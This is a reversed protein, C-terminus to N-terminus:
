WIEIDALLEKKFKTFQKQRVKREKEEKKLEDQEQQKKALEKAKDMQEAMNSLPLAIKEFEVINDSIKKDLMQALTHLTKISRLFSKISSEKWYSTSVGCPNHIFEIQNEMNMKSLLPLYVSEFAEITKEYLNELTKNEVKIKSKLSKEILEFIGKIVDSIDTKQNLCAINEFAKEFTFYIAKSQNNKSLNEIKYLASKIQESFYNVYYDCFHNQFNEFEKKELLNDSMIMDKAEELLFLLRNGYSKVYFDFSNLPYTEKLEEVQNLLNALLLAYDNKLSKLLSYDDRVLIAFILALLREQGAKNFNNKETITKVLEIFNKESFNLGFFDNYKVNEFVNHRIKLRNFSNDTTCNFKKIHMAECFLNNSVKGWLQSLNIHEKLSFLINNNVKDNANNLLEPLFVQFPLSLVNSDITKVNSYHDLDAEQFLSIFEEFTLDFEQSQNDNLRKKYFNLVNKCDKEWVTLNTCDELDHEKRFVIAQDLHTKLERIFQIRGSFSLSLFRNLSFKKNSM